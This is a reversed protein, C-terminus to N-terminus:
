WSKRSRWFEPRVLILLTFFELRGLLMCLTLVGKGFLNISAYSTTPGVVGFGPGVNGLTAAVASMADFPQLGTASVLISAAAFTVVYLFFFVGVMKLVDPDVAKGELKISSVVQRHIGRKLEAWTSKTLLMLRSVKMGGSTSGSSGGVFMLLLLIIQAMAPWQGFDTSMFGTTTIITAVQFLAHRLAFGLEKGGGLWLSGTILLTASLIILLYVLLETNRFPKFSRKRWAILYIGFNAGCLIMFFTLILEIALSDYYAISTNKTSFGGTAVTAFSHNIADFLTMGAFWLLIAQVITFILYIRWLTIATDRIRPLVRENVPGPVEANFLHVAGVGSNPLLVIFLVIIGMGGLWHTLSRWLLISSPLIEVNSIVSAGTTTLGSVTEFIADIYTPVIDAFWFPLAGFLSALIWSAAVIAYGERVGMTKRHTPKQQRWLFLGIVGSALMSLIFASLSSEKKFAALIMPISMTISYGVLLRGLFGLVIPFNM